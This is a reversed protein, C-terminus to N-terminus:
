VSFYKLNARDYLRVAIWYMLPLGGFEYLVWVIRSWWVIPDFVSFLIFDLVTGLLWLAVSVSSPLSPTAAAIMFVKVAINLPTRIAEEM